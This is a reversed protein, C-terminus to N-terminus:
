IQALKAKESIAFFTRSRVIFYIGLGIIILVFIITYAIFTTNEPTFAPSLVMVALLLIGFAIFALGVVIQGIGKAHIQSPTGKIGRTQLLQPNELIEKIKKMWFIAPRGKLTLSQGTKTVIAITNDVANFSKKILKVDAIAAFPIRATIARVKPVGDQEVRERKVVQVGSVCLTIFTARTGSQFGGLGHLPTSDWATQESAPIAQEALPNGCNPCFLVGLESINYGCKNCVINSM